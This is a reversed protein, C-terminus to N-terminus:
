YIRVTSLVVSGEKGSKEYKVETALVSEGASASKIATVTFGSTQLFKGLEMVGASSIGAKEDYSLRFYGEKDHVFSPSHASQQMYANFQPLIDDQAAIADAEFKIIVASNM